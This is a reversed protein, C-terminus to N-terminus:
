GRTGEGHDEDFLDKLGTLFWGATWDRDQSVMQVKAKLNQALQATGAAMEGSRIMEYAAIDLLCCRYM